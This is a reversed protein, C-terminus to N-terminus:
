AIAKSKKGRDWRRRTTVLKRKYVERYPIAAADMLPCLTRVYLALREAVEVALEPTLVGLPWTEHLRAWSATWEEPEADPGLEALATGAFASLKEAWHYSDARDGEFHLGLELRGTKRQPWVEFHIAANGFHVQLLSWVRKTSGADAGMEAVYCERLHDLFDSVKLSAAM